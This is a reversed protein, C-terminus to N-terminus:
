SNERLPEDHEICKTVFYGTATNVDDNLTKNVRKWTCPLQTRTSTLSGPTGVRRLTPLYRPFYSSFCYM